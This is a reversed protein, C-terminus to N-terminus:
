GTRRCRARGIGLDNDFGVIPVFSLFAGLIPNPLIAGITHQPRMVDPHAGSRFDTKFVDPDEVVRTKSVDLSILVWSQPGAKTFLEHRHPNPSPTSGKASRPGVAPCPPLGSYFAKDGVDLPKCMNTCCLEAQTVM